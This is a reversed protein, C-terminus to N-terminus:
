DKANISITAKKSRLYISFKNEKARTIQAPENVAPIRPARVPSPPPTTITGRRVKTKPTSILYAIPADNIETIAV